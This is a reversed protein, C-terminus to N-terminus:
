RWSSCRCAVRLIAPRSREAGPACCNDAAALCRALWITNAGSGSIGNVLPFAVSWLGWYDSKNSVSIRWQAIGSDPPLDVTVRVTLVRDEHWWRLDNWEMVARQAGGPLKEVGLYNCPAYNNTVKEIQTGRAFAVEWLLHKEKVPQLHNVGSHLDVLASLGMGQPEFEMRVFNNALTLGKSPDLPEAAPLCVSCLVMVFLALTKTRM